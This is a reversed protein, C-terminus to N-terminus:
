RAYHCAGVVSVGEDMGDGGDGRQSGRRGTDQRSSKRCAEDDGRREQPRRDDSTPQQQDVDCSAEKGTPACTEDLVTDPNGGGGSKVAIPNDDSGERGREEKCEADSSAERFAGVGGGGDPRENARLNGKNTRLVVLATTFDSIAREHSLSLIRVIPKRAGAHKM